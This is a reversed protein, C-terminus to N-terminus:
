YWGYQLEHQWANWPDGYRGRIYGMGWIIQTRASTRWDPGASAMKDGPVAQPIGYAGSSHNCAFRNWGSERMWLLNLYRFQWSTWHYAPMLSGAIQWPSGDLRGRHRRARHHRARHHRIRHRAHHHPARHHKKHQKPHQRAHRRPQPHKEATGYSALTITGPGSTSSTGPSSGLAHGLIDSLGGRGANGTGTVQAGPSATLAAGLGTQRAGRGDHGSSHPSTGLYGALAIVSGTLVLATKAPIHTFTRKAAM